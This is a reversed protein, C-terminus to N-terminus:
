TQVVTVTMAPDTLGFQNLDKPNEDVVTDANLPSVASLLTTVAEQDAPYSDPATIAWKGNVSKLTMVQGGKKAIDVERVKAQPIDVLKTTAPTTTDTAAATPHKKAWWVAGSLAALVVAAVILNRPKM